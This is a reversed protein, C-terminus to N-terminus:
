SILIKIKVQGNHTKFSYDEKQVFYGPIACEAIKFIRHFYLFKKRSLKHQFLNGDKRQGRLKEKMVYKISHETFIKSVCRTVIVLGPEFTYNAKNRFSLGKKNGFKFHTVDTTVKEFPKSPQLIACM